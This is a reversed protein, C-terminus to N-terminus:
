DLKTYSKPFVDVEIYTAGVTIKSGDFNSSLLKIFDQGRGKKIGLTKGMQERGETIRKIFEKVELEEKKLEVNEGGERLKKKIKM